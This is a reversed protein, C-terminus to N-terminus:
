CRWGRRRGWCWRHCAPIRWRGTGREPGRWGGARRGRRDPRGAMHALPALDGSAGVSGKAPICPVIGARLFGLLQETVAPRVGSYGRALGVLKLAMVLRVIEAPLLAGVGAAHSLVLRRQLEALQATPISTQALLGFGTNIGYVTRGSAVIGDVTAASAAMAAQCAPDLAVGAGGHLARLDALTLRAGGIRVTVARRGADAPGARAHARM